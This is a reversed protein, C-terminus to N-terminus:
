GTRDWGDWGMGTGPEWGPERDRNGTGKGEAGTGALLSLFAARLWWRM